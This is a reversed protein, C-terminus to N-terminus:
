DSINPNNYREANPLPFCRMDGFFGGKPYPEGAPPDYPIEFRRMDWFRQGELFLERAREQIVHDHIEQPDQSQFEPLGARQHFMNIIDVADQGGKLEALILQAEDWSAMPIDTDLSPYKLQSWVEYVRGSGLQGTNVAQVRPDAVGEYELERYRPDVSVDYNQNIARFVQNMSRESASSFHSLYVFDQSVAEADSIAGATDGLDRRVRARGVRALDVLDDLGADTAAQLAQGLRDEAQALITEWGLEGSLNIAASCYSEGLLIRGYGAYALTTAILDARGPVEAESWDELHALTEEAQALEMGLPAYIANLQDCEFLAANENDPGVNRADFEFAQASRLNSNVLEDSTEGTTVVYQAFACDFSAVVSAVQLAATAPDDLQETPVRDPPEVDLVSDCAGLALTLLVAALGGRMLARAASGPRAPWLTTTTEM